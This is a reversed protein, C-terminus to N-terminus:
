KSVTYSSRKLEILAAEDESLGLKKTLPPPLLRAGLIVEVRDGKSLQTDFHFRKVENAKPIDNKLVSDALWPPTPKGGKGLVKRLTVAPLKQIKGQRDITTDLELVRAPHTLLPHPTENKLTVTFGREDPTVSLKLYQALKESGHHLGAAGHWAHTDSQRISTASGPVKPMHCTICNPKGKKVGEEGMRCLDLGHGNVKHSHCGMCVEGTYFIEKRYDIDHYPSGVRRTKLGFWISEEHYRIVKEERGEQASFLLKDQEKRYINRNAQAHNEISEIRHCSLCTMGQEGEASKAGPAHCNRCSKKEPSRKLMAAFFPDKKASSNAHASAEFEKVIAPHCSRCAGLDFTAGFAFLSLLSILTLKKM